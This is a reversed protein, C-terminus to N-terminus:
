GICNLDATRLAKFKTDQDTDTQIGFTGSEMLGHEDSRYLRVHRITNSHELDAIRGDLTGGLGTRATALVRYHGEIYSDCRKGPKNLNEPDWAAAAVQTSTRGGSGAIELLLRRDPNRQDNCSYRNPKGQAILNDLIYNARGLHDPMKM